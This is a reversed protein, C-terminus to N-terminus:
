CRNAGINHPILFPELSRGTIHHNKLRMVTTRLLYALQNQYTVLMREHFFQGLVTPKPFTRKNNETKQSGNIEHTKQFL